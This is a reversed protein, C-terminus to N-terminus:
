GHLDGPALDRQALHRIAYVVVRTPRVAFVIRHTRRKGSGYNLQRLDIPFRHNERAFPCRDPAEELSYLSQLIGEFWRDAAEPSRCAYWEYFSHLNREARETLVVEYRM